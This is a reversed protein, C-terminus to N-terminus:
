SCIFAGGATRARFVGERAIVERVRREIETRALVPSRDAYWGQVSEVYDVVPAVEPVAVEGNFAEIRVSTFSAGLLPAGNELNFRESIPPRDAGAAVRRVARLEALHEVSNTVAILVGGPRVVRRLEAVAAPIDPCHYLMHPALVRDFAADAFPLAAADAVLVPAHVSAERAMGASLDVGVARVASLLGLYSGPGCGVDLVRCGPPWDTRGLVWDGIAGPPTRWQYIAGRARLKTSDAYAEAQLHRRDIGPLAGEETLADPRPRTSRM